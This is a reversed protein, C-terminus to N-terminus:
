RVDLHIPDWWYLFTWQEYKWDPGPMGPPNKPNKSIEEDALVYDEGDWVYGRVWTRRIVPPTSEPHSWWWGKPDFYEYPYYGHIGYTRFYWQCGEPSVNHPGTWILWTVDTIPDQPYDAGFMITFLNSDEEPNWDGPADIVGALRWFGYTRDNELVAGEVEEEAEEEEGCFVLGFAV